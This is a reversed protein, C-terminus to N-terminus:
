RQGSRADKAYDLKAWKILKKTTNKVEDSMLKNDIDFIAGLRDLARLKSESDANRPTPYDLSYLSFLDSSRQYRFGSKEVHLASLIALWEAHRRHYAFLLANSMDEKYACMYDVERQSWSFKESDGRIAIRENHRYSRVWEHCVIWDDIFQDALVCLAYQIPVIGILVAEGIDQLAQATQFAVQNEWPSGGPSFRYFSSNRKWQEREPGIAARLAVGRASRLNALTLQSGSINVSIPGGTLEKEVYRSHVFREISEIQHAAVGAKVQRRLERLQHFAVLIALSTVLLAVLDLIIPATLWPELNTALASSLADPLARGQEIESSINNM